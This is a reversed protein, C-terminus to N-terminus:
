IANLLTYIRLSFFVNNRNKSLFSLFILILFISWKQLEYSWMYSKLEDDALFQEQTASYIVRHQKTNSTKNRLWHYEVCFLWEIFLYSSMNSWLRWSNSVLFATSHPIHIPMFFYAVEKKKKKIKSPRIQPWTAWAPQLPFFSFLMFGFGM